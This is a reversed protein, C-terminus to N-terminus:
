VCIPVEMRIELREAPLFFGAQIDPFITEIQMSKQPIFCSRFFSLSSYFQKWPIKARVKLIIDCVDELGIWGITPCAPKVDKEMLPFIEDIRLINNYLSLTLVM